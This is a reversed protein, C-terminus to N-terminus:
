CPVVKALTAPSEKRLVQYAIAGSVQHRAKNWALALLGAWALFAVSYFASVLPPRM